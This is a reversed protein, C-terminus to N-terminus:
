WRLFCPETSFRRSITNSQSPAVPPRPRDVRAGRLVRQTRRLGAPRRTNRTQHGEVSRMRVTQHGNPGHLLATYAANFFNFGPIVRAFGSFANDSPNRCLQFFIIRNHALAGRDEWERRVAAAPLCDKQRPFGYHRNEYNGFVSTWCSTNVPDHSNKGYLYYPPMAIRGRGRRARAPTLPAITRKLM